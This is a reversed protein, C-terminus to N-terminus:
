DSPSTRPGPPGANGRTRALVVNAEAGLLFLFAGLYIWMLLVVVGGLVGYTASYTGFEDIWGTLAASLVLWLLAAALGGPTIWHWDPQRDPGKSYLLATVCTIIAFGVPWRLWGWLVVVRPPLALWRTLIGGPDAGIMLIGLCIVVFAGGIAMLLAIARHHWWKRSERVGYVRNLGKIIAAIGNSCAWLTGLIGISLLDPRQNKLTTAVFQTLLEATDSPLFRHFLLLLNVLTHEPERVILSALSGVFLLFPFLSFLAYYTIEASLGPLDDSQSKRWLEAGIRSSFLRVFDNAFQTIGNTRAAAGAAVARREAM